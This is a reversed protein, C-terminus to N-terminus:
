RGERDLRAAVAEEIYTSIQIGTMAAAVKLRRYSLKRISSFFKFLPINSVEGLETNHLHVQFFHPHISIMGPMDTSVLVSEGDIASFIQSM